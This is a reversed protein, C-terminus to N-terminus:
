PDTSEPKEQKEDHQSFYGFAGRLASVYRQIEAEKIHAHRMCAAGLQLSSEFTESVVETAGLVKLAYCDQDSRGRAFIPLEPDSERVNKVVQKVKDPSDLTVILISAEAINAARLVKENSADGYFVSYGDSRASAVRDADKEIAIYALDFGRLMEAIRHGARGFGAIIVPNKEARDTKGILTILGQDHDTRNRNALRSAVRALLPTAVMTLAVVLILQQFIHADLLNQTLAVGFLVFAFEGSQGLLLGSALSELPKMGFLHALATLIIAKISILGVVLALFLLPEDGFLNLNVSMGVAMFFLGLLFGRFPQIDSLIQHRYESDAILLGAIFAGMALSFGAIAILAATGMVFLVAAAAFIDSDGSTAIRRLVPQLLYRGAFIVLALIILAEVVALVLEAGLSMEAASLLPILALLPVVALDQMLLVSFSNRGYAKTLSRQESLIRVVFATSSLALGFGIIVSVEASFGMLHVLGSLILGTIVIQASGLGFVWRRMMWLYAPKLEIGIIFLLFVVGLEAFHRIEEVNTIFGLGSPGILGGAVLFGLIAGLGARQFLPVLVVAASLLILSDILYAPVM